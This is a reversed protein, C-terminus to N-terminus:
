RSQEQNGRGYGGGGGGGGHGHDDDGVSRTVPLLWASAAIAIGLLLGVIMPWKLRPFAATWLWRAHLLLHLVALACLTYASWTHIDGWEHRSLDWIALGAGGRSGPPLRYRIVFGTALMVCLAIWLLFDTIRNLWLKM